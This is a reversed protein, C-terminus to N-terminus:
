NLHSQVNNIVEDWNLSPNQSTLFHIGNEVALIWKEEDNKAKSRLCSIAFVTLFQTRNLSLAQQSEPPINFGCCIRMSNEESWSGDANQLQLLRLLFFPKKPISNPKIVRRQEEKERMMQIVDIHTFNEDFDLPALFDNGSNAHLAELQQSYINPQQEHSNTIIRNHINILPFPFIRVTFPIRIHIPFPYPRPRIIPEQPHDFTLHKEIWQLGSAGMQTELHVLDGVIENEREVVAVLPLDQCLIKNALSIETKDLEDFEEQKKININIRELAWLRNLIPLASENVSLEIFKNDLHIRVHDLKMDKHGIFCKSFSFSYGPPIQPLIMKEGSIDLYVKKYVGCGTMKIIDLLSGTLSADDPVPLYISNHQIATLLLDGKSLPDLMFHTHSDSLTISDAIPSGIIIVVSEVTNGQMPDVVTRKYVDYFAAPTSEEKLPNRVFELAKKRNVTDLVQPVPFLSNQRSGYNSINLYSGIPVSLVFFELARLLISLESSTMDDYQEMLITYKVPNKRELLPSMINARIFVNNDVEQYLLSNMNVLSEGDYNIVVHLPHFLSLNDSTIMGTTMDIKTETFPTAISSIKRFDKVSISLKVPPPNLGLVANKGSNCIYTPLILLYGNSLPQLPVDYFLTLKCTESPELPGIYIRLENKETNKVFAAFDSSAIADDYELKADDTNSISSEVTENKYKVKFYTACVGFPLPFTFSIEITETKKKNQFYVQLCSSCIGNIINGKIKLQTIPQSEGSILTSM